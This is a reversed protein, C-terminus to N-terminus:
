SVALPLKLHFVAGGESQNEAWIRGKHAQIIARCRLVLELTAAGVAVIVGISRDRYKEKLHHQLSEEYDRGNLRSLDLNEAYLSTRARAKANLEARIASFIQFYFPGRPESQDLVLVSQARAGPAQLDVPSLLLVLCLMLGYTRDAIM